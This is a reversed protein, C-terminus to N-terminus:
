QNENLLLGTAMQLEDLIYVSKSTFLLTKSVARIDLKLIETMYKPITSDFTVVIWEYVFHCVITILFPLSTLLSVWPM